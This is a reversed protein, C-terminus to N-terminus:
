HLKGFVFSTVIYAYFVDISYHCRSAVNLLSLLFNLGWIIMKFSESIDYFYGLHYCYLTMFATHGSFLLDNNHGTHVDKFTVYDKLIQVCSRTNDKDKMFGCKPLITITFSITRLLYIISLDFLFSMLNSNYYFILSSISLFIFNDSIRYYKHLFKLDERHLIDPLVIRHKNERSIIRFINPRETNEKYGSEKNEKENTNEIAQKIPLKDSIYKQAKTMLLLVGGLLFPTLYEM